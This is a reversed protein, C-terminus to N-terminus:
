LVDLFHGLKLCCGRWSAETLANNILHGKLDSSEGLFVVSSVRCSDVWEALRASKSKWYYNPVVFILLMRTWAWSHLSVNAVSPFHESFGDTTNSHATSSCPRVWETHWSVASCRKHSRLVCFELCHTIHTHHCTTLPANIHTHTHTHSGELTNARLESSWLHDTYYFPGQVGQHWPM